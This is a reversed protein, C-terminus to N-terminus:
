YNMWIEQYVSTGRSYKITTCDKSTNLGYSEGTVYVKGKIDVVIDNAADDLQMKNDYFNIGQEEGDSNYMITIYDKTGDNNAFYGTVYVNGENDIALAKPLVDKNDPSNYKKVWLLEGVASYKATVMEFINWYKEDSGTVYVNGSDDVAFDCATDDNNYYNYTGRWQENGESDYKVIVWDSRSTSDFFTGMVYINGANDLLIKAISVDPNNLGSINKVWQQTGASDYKITTIGTNGDLESIGTVYVNGSSDVVVDTASDKCDGPSSYVQHWQEVGTTDYKITIYDCATIQGVVYVNNISDTVIGRGVSNSSLYAVDWEKEGNTNYKVTVISSQWFIYFVSEGTVYVNGNEDIAMDYVIDNKFAVGEYLADWLKNGNKDYKITLYNKNQYTVESYGAVYVNGISDVKVVSGVDNGGTIGDFYSAWLQEGSDSYKITVFDANRKTNTCFGTVYVKGLNDICIGYGEDWLKGPGDFTKAWKLAGDSDYKITLCDYYFPYDVGIQNSGTIYINSYDDVCIAYPEDYNKNPSDYRRSWQQVGMNNYKVTLYDWSNLYSEGLVYINDVKDIVIAIPVTDTGESYTNAWQLQGSNNLKTIKLNYNNNGKIKELIFINGLSDVAIDMGSDPYIWQEVGKNNYKITAYNGTVFVNGSNDISIGYAEEDDELPYDYRALWEQIGDGNVKITTYNYKADKYNSYGTIYVNGEDDITMDGVSESLRNPDNYLLEWQKIGEKNYKVLGIDPYGKQDQTGACYINGLNDIKLFIKRDFSMKFYNYIVSWQKEGMTDYKVISTAGSGKGAIYSNGENDVCIAYAYDSASRDYNYRAVWEERIQSFLNSISFAYMM